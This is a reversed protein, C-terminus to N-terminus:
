PMGTSHPMGPRILAMAKLENWVEDAGDCAIVFAIQTDREGPPYLYLAGNVYEAHAIHDTNVVREEDDVRYYIFM